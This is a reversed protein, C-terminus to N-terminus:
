AKIDWHERRCLGDYECRLCDQDGGNAPLAAGERLSQFLMVVRAAVAKANEQPHPSDVLRPMGEVDLMLYAAQAIPQDALLTYVALQVDEGQAIDRAIRGSFSKLKYDLIAVEEGEPSRRRDMRDLKGKLVVQGPTHAGLLREHMVEGGAWRWGDQEWATAWAVYSPIRSEWRLGWARMEEDPIKKRSFVSRTLATLRKVAEATALASVQPTAQHFQYLVEHIRQGYDRKDVTEQITTDDDLRLVAAAFFQYPCALLRNHGSASLSLPVQTAALRPAPMGPATVQVAAIAPISPPPALLPKGWASRHFVDLRQLLPALPNREGNIESRWTIKVTGARSILEILDRRTAELVDQRTPLGLAARVVDGFYAQLSIFPLHDADAGLVLVADFSRLRTMSLQTMCVPGRPRDEMFSAAEFQLDLARVWESLTLKGPIQGADEGLQKLIDLLQCGAADLALGMAIGCTELSLTLRELWQAFLLTQPKFLQTGRQLRDLMERAAASEEQDGTAGELRQVLLGLDSIWNTRLMLNELVTVAQQRKEVPWDGCLYPSHMLDQLHRYYGESRVLDLWRMVVTSAATTSFTWGSEDRVEVGQRELMARLRRSVMRDQAVIAINRYGASLWQRVQLAGEHAEREISQMGALALRGEFPSTPMDRALTQARGSLTGQGPDGWAARLAITCADGERGPLPNEIRVLTMREALAALCQSEAPTLGEAAVLYCSGRQPLQALRALQQQYAMAPSLEQPNQNLVWWLDHVLRAEFQLPTSSRTAYAQALQGAFSETDQPMAFGWRTLEDVLVLAERALVWRDEQEFWRQERLANFVLSLREIEPVIRGSSPQEAAWRALTTICLPFSFPLSETLRQQFSEALAAHPLLVMVPSEPQQLVDGVIRRLAVELVDEECSAIL